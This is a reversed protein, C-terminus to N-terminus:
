SQISPKRVTTPTLGWALPFFPTLESRVGTATRTLGERPARGPDPLEGLRDGRLERSRYIKVCLDTEVTATGVLSSNLVGTTTQVVATCTTGDWIGVEFGLQPVLAPELGTITGTVTGPMTHFTYTQSGLYGITGEFTETVTTTPVSTTSTTTTTTTTTPTTPTTTGCAYAILAVPILSLLFRVAKPHRM